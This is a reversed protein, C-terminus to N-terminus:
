VEAGVPPEHGQLATAIVQRLAEIRYPKRLFPLKAAALRETMGGGFGSTLILPVQEQRRALERALDLGSGGPLLVDSFVLDFPESGSLVALASVTTAVRMASHGLEGLMELVMAAVNDDDEVVLVKLRRDRRMATVPPHDSAPEVPPRLSRPLVIHVATGAGLTSDLWAGGGSQRAFGYVQALGLGTGKGDTKTSFFPEFVKEVLEPPMGTGSDVVSIDVYEGPQLSRRGTANAGITQNRAALLLTGGNPMADRANVALNLLALELAAVDAEVPWLEPELDFHMEVSEDLAHGLLERMSEMHRALDLREPHLPQRRAFALLRQTLHAGRWAAEQIRGILRDRRQQEREQALLQLGGTIVTLLNNFDHAIGGTLQGIAELKQIQFLEAQAKTRTATEIEVRNRLHQNLRELKGNAEELATTREAVRQELHNNTAMLAENVSRLQNALVSAAELAVRLEQEKSLVGMSQALLEGSRAAGQAARAARAEAERRQLELLALRSKLAQNEQAIAAVEAHADELSARAQGPEPQHLSQEQSDPHAM